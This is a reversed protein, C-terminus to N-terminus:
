SGQRSLYTWAIVLYCAPDDVVASGFDIVASLNYSNEDDRAKTLLRPSRADTTQIAEDSQSECHRESLLQSECHRDSLLIHGIDSNGTM